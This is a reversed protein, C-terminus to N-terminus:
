FFSFCVQQRRETEVLQFFFHRKTCKRGRNWTESKIKLPAVCAGRMGREDERKMLILKNLSFPAHLPHLSIKLMEGKNKERNRL